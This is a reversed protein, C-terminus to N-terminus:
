HEAKQGQNRGAQNEGTWRGILTTLYVRAGEWVPESFVAAILCTLMLVYPSPEPSGAAFITLGGKVALFVVLAASLGRIVVSSLSSVIQGAPAVKSGRERIVTSATAGLLGFGLLGVVSVLSLSETRLLWRAIPGFPGLRGGLPQRPPVPSFVWRDDCESFAMQWRPPQLGQTLNTGGADFRRSIAAVWLRTDNNAMESARVCENIERQAHHLYEEYWDLVAQYHLDREVNGKRRANREFTTLAQTRGRLIQGTWWESQNRYELRTRERLLSTETLLTEVDGPLPRRQQSEVQLVLPEIPNAAFFTADGPRLQYQESQLTTTLSAIDSESASTEEQLEPVVVIAAVVLYASGILLAFTVTNHAHAAM